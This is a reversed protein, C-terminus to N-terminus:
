FQKGLEPIIYLLWWLFVQIALVVFSLAASVLALKRGGLNPRHFSIAVGFIGVAFALPVFLIGLYPVFSYVLCAWATESVSNENKPFLNSIEEKKANEVLFSKGQLRYSARLNDLPQYDERLLKGCVPCFKADGRKAEAGCASCSKEISFPYNTISLQERELDRKGNEMKWKGNEM